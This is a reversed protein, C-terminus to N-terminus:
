RNRWCLQFRPKLPRRDRPDPAFGKPDVIRSGPRALSRVARMDAADLEFDFVGLNEALRAENITRSLAVVGGQQILWRLVIPAISRGHCVAM